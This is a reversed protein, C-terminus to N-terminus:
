RLDVATSIKLEQPVILFIDVIYTLQTSLWFNEACTKNSNTRYIKKRASLHELTRMFVM